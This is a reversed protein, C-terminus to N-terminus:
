LSFLQPSHWPSFEKQPLSNLAASFERCRGATKPVHMFVIVDGSNPRKSPDLSFLLTNEGTPPPLNRAAMPNTASNTASLATTSSAAAAHAARVAFGAVAAVVQSMSSPEDTVQSTSSHPEPMRSFPQQFQHQTQSTSSSFNSDGILSTSATGIRHSGSLNPLSGTSPLKPEIQIM